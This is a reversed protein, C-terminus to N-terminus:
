RTPDPSQSGALTLAEELLPVDAPQAASGAPILATAEILGGPVENSMRFLYVKGAYREYRGRLPDDEYPAIRIETGAVPHGNYSFTAPRVQASGALAVRIRKRFYASRGGTLREMERIDREFFCLLAPNGQAFDLEPMELKRSGSLCRTEVSRAAGAAPKLDLQVTDSFGPELTGRRVLGYRLASPVPLAALYDTMFLATEAESIPQSEAGAAASAASATIALALLLAAALRM